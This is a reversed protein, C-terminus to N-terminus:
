YQQQQAQPPQYTEVLQRIMFIATQISQTSGSITVVREDPTAPDPDAISVVTGSQSRIDKITSGHKGIVCGATVTPIAIKQTSTPQTNVSMQGMQGAFQSQGAGYLPAQGFQGQNPLAGLGGGMGMNGYGGGIAGHMGLGGMGGGMGAGMAANVAGPVYQSQKVGPRLPSEALQGLIDVSAQDVSDKPGSVTVTKDTSNALCEQSIQIKCGTDSQTQKIVAGAKGIIAGVASRHVLMKMSVDASEVGTKQATAESVFSYIM